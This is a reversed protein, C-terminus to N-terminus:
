QDARVVVDSCSRRNLWPFSVDPVSVELFECLPEWEFPQFFTLVRDGLAGRVDSQHSLWAYHLAQINTPDDTGYVMDRYVRDYLRDSEWFEPIRQLSELWEGFNRTNLIFKSDPYMAALTRWNATVFLDGAADHGDIHDWHRPNHIPNWGLIELAKCLSASGCRPFGVIWVHPKM